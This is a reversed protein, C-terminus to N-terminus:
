HVILITNIFCLCFYSQHRTTSCSSLLPWVNTKGLRRNLEGFWRSQFTVGVAPIQLLAYHSQGDNVHGMQLLWFQGEVQCDDRFCWSPLHPAESPGSLGMALYLLHRGPANPASPSIACAWPKCASFTNEQRTNWRWHVQLARARNNKGDPFCPSHQDTTALGISRSTKTSLFISTINTQM